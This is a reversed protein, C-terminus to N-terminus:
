AKEKRAVLGKLEAAVGEMVPPWAGPQPQRLLRMTPYWPSDERDLMWRWDPGAALLTWVPRALAGAIHVVSTDVSILLDLVELLAATDAFDRLEDGLAVVKMGAPPSAIQAAPPGKQLSYFTVGEIGALPAFAALPASRSRDNVHAATGAWVIGVKFNGADGALRERWREVRQPDASIYPVRAPITALTTKFLGPLSSLPAYFDFQPVDGGTVTGGGVAKDDVVGDVGQVTEIVARLVPPCAVITKAGRKALLTAYRVFHITDGLGQENMLLITKGSPDSGDWRPQQFRYPTIAATRWRAEYDAFGRELDGLTLLALSRNAIADAADPWRAGIQDYIALAEKARGMKLLTLALNGQPDFLNPDLQIARRYADAAEAFLALTQLANGLMVLVRADNPALAAARRAPPLAEDYRQLRWLAEAYQMWVSAIGPALETARRLVPVADGGRGIRMLAYGYNGLRIGDNPALEAAIRFRETAEPIRNLAFLSLGAAHHALGERPNLEITRRFSVLAEEHRNLVALVEGLHLHFAAFTPLITIAQQLLPLALDPRGRQATAVGLLHLADANTPREVLVRRYASEANNLDGANHQNLAAQLLEAVQRDDM